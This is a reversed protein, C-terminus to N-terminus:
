SFDNSFDNNFDGGDPDPEVDDEETENLSIALPRDPRVFRLNIRDAPPAPLRWPDPEDTCDDCVMLGTDPDQGLDDHPLTKRCRDCIAVALTNKGRTDLFVAM